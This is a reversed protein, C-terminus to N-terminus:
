FAHKPLPYLFLIELLPRRNHNAKWQRFLICIYFYFFSVPFSMTAVKCMIVSIYFALKISKTCSCLRSTHVIQSSVCGFLAFFTCLLCVFQYKQLFANGYSSYLVFRCTQSIRSRSNLVFIKSCNIRCCTTRFSCNQWIISVNSFHSTVTICSAKIQCLFKLLWYVLHNIHFFFM